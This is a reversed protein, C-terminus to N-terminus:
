ICYIPLSHLALPTQHWEIPVVGPIAPFYGDLVVLWSNQIIEPVCDGADQIHRDRAPLLSCIRVHVKPEQRVRDREHPYQGYDQHQM